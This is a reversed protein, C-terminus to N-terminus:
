AESREEHSVRLIAEDMRPKFWLRIGNLQAATLADRADTLVQDLVAMYQIDPAQGEPISYSVRAPEPMKPTTKIPIM